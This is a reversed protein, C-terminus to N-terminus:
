APLTPTLLYRAGDYVAYLGGATEGVEVSGEVVSKMGNGEAGCDADSVVASGASGGTPLGALLNWGTWQGTKRSASAVAADVGTTVVKTNTHYSRNHQPGTWWECAFSVETEAVYVFSVSDHADQMQKNNFGLLEQVEGKGVFTETYAAAPAAATVALAGAAAAALLTRSLRM